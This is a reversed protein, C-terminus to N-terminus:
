KQLYKEPPSMKQKNTSSKVHLRKLLRSWRKEQEKVKQGSTEKKVTVTVPKDEAKMTLPKDEVKKKNDQDVVKDNDKHISSLVYGRFLYMAAFCSFVIAAVILIRKNLTTLSDFFKNEVAANATQLYNFNFNVNM